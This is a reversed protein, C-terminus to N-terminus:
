VKTLLKEFSINQHNCIKKYEERVFKTIPGEQGSGINKDNVTAVGRVEVATGVVFVEDAAFLEEPKISKEIVKYNKSSMFKMITDRTIGELISGVAPTYIIDDKIVFINDSSGEAVNGEFDLMVVETYHTGRIELLAQLSNIYHGCIKAKVNTSGAHLRITDCIKVHIAGDPMYNGMHYCSIIVEVPTDLAPSVRVGSPPLGYYALPRIYCEQFENVRVTEIIGQCLEEHTYPIQMALTKASDILRKVHANLALIETVGNNNYARIGEFVGTGYHLAHSMVHTTADAYPVIKGNQWIYKSM